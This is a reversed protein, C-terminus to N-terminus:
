GKLFKKLEDVIVYESDSIGGRMQKMRDAIRQQAPDVTKKVKRMKESREISAKKVPVTQPDTVKPKVKRMANTRDTSVSTKKPEVIPESTAPPKERKRKAYDYIIKEDSSLAESNKVKLDIVDSNQLYGLFMDYLNRETTNLSKDGFRRRKAIIDDIVPADPDVDKYKSTQAIDISKPTTVDVSQPSTQERDEDSVQGDVVDSTTDDFDRIDGTPKNPNLSKYLADAEKSDIYGAEEADKITAGGPKKLKAQAVVFKETARKLINKHRAEAKQEPTMEDWTPGKVVDSTGTDVSVSGDANPVIGPTSPAAVPEDDTDGSLDEPEEPETTTVPDPIGTGRDPRGVGKNIADQVGDDDLDETDSVDADADADDIYEEDPKHPPSFSVQVPLFDDVAPDFGIDLQEALEKPKNAFMRGTFIYIEEDIPDGDDSPGTYRCYLFASDDYGYAIVANMDFEHNNGEGDVTDVKVKMPISLGSVKNVTTTTFASQSALARAVRGVWRRRNTQPNLAGDGKVVLGDQKGTGGDKVLMVSPFKADIRARKSGGNRRSLVGSGNKMFDEFSLGTVKLILERALTAHKGLM